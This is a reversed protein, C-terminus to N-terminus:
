PNITATLTTTAVYTDAPISPSPSANIVVRFRLTTTSGSDDTESSRNIITFETTSAGMWCQSASQSGGSQNCISGNDLFSQDLDTTTTAEVSYGFGADNALVESSTFDYEPESMDVTTTSYDPIEGGESNGQMAASSSSVITMNYGSPDNTFVVVQTGGNSAGGTIGPISPSLTVNNATTLFSIEGTVTQSVEFQDEIQARILTPELALFSVYLALTIILSGALVERAAEKLNFVKINM